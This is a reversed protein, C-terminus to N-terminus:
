HQSISKELAKKLYNSNFAKKKTTMGKLQTSSSNEKTVKFDPRREGTFHLPSFISQLCVSQLDEDCCGDAILFSFMLILLSSIRARLSITRMRFTPLFILVFGHCYLAFQRHLCQTRPEELLFNRTVNTDAESSTVALSHFLIAAGKRHRLLKM